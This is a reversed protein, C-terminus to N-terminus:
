SAAEGWAGTAFGHSLCVLRHVIELETRDRPAYLMVATPPAFGKSVMVHPEGWGADMVERAVDVPLMVHLSMDPDPHLHAFERGVMFAEPPGVGRSSEELVLARAGPVSIGSPEERVHALGWVRRTLEDRISPDTPQQDIQLHPNTQTTAPRSGRRPPLSTLDPAM